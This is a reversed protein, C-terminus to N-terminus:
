EAAPIADTRHPYLRAIGTLNERPAWRLFRLYPEVFNAAVFSQGEAYGGAGYACVIYAMKGTLLGAFQM